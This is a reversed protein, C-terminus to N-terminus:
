GRLLAVIREGADADGYLPRWESEVARGVLQNLDSDVSALVNWGGELTETWETESRLTTCLKKAWYAEKQLGGSDTIVHDCCQLAKLIDLYGLPDLIRVNSPLKAGGM